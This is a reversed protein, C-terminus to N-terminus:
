TRHRGGHTKPHPAMRDIFKARRIFSQLLKTGIVESHGFSYLIQCICAGLDQMKAPGFFFVFAEPAELKRPARRFFFNAVSAKFHPTAGPFSRLGRAGSKVLMNKAGQRGRKISQSTSHYVRMEISAIGGMIIHRFMSGFRFM